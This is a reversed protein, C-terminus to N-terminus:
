AITCGSAARVRDLGARTFRAGRTRGRGVGLDLEELTRMLPANSLALLGRDTVQVVDGGDEGPAVELTRLGSLGFGSAHALALAEDDGFVCDYLRIEELGRTSPNHGLAVLLRRLAGPGDFGGPFGIALRELEGLHHSALFPGVVPLDDGSMTHVGEFDISTMRTNESFEGVLYHSYEEPEDSLVYGRQSGNQFFTRLRGGPYRSMGAYVRTAEHGAGAGHALAPLPDGQGLVDVACGTYEHFRELATRSEGTLDNFEVRLWKLGQLQPSVLLRTLLDHTLGVGMLDLEHLSSLSSAVLARVLSAAADYTFSLDLRRLGELHPSSLLAPLEDYADVQRMFLQELGALTPAGALRTLEGRDPMQPLVLRRVGRLVDPHTVVDTWPPNTHDAVLLEGDRYVGARPDTVLHQIM